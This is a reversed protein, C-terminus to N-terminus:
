TSLMEMVFIGSSKEELWEAPPGKDGGRIFCKAAFWQNLAGFALWLSPNCSKHYREFIINIVIISIIVDICM